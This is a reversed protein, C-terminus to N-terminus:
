FKKPLGAEKLVQNATHRSKIDSDVPFNTDTIPSHWIDHDGKGSRLYNCGSDQLIRKLRTTYGVM